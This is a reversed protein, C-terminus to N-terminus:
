GISDVRFRAAVADLDALKFLICRRGMKSFPVLRRRQWDRLTRPAVGYYKAADSPRLYGPKTNTLQRNMTNREAATRRTTEKCAEFPLSVIQRYM